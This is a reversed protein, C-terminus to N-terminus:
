SRHYSIRNKDGGKIKEEAKQPDFLDTDTCCPIVEM